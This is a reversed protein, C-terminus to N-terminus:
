HDLFTCHQHFVHSRKTNILLVFEVSRFGNVFMIKCIRWFAVILPFHTDFKPRSEANADKRRSGNLLYGDGIGRWLGFVFTLTSNPHLNSRLQWEGFLCKEIVYNQFQFSLYDSILFKGGTLTETFLLILKDWRECFWVGLLQWFISSYFQNYLLTYKKLGIIM